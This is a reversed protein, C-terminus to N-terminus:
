AGSEMQLKIRVREVGDETLFAATVDAEGRAARKLDRAFGRLEEEDGEILVGDSIDIKM